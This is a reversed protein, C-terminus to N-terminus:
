KATLGIDYEFIKMEILLLM